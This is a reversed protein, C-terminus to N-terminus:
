CQLKSQLALKVDGEFSITCDVPNILVLPLLRKRALEVVEATGGPGSAPEGNWVAILIRASEVMNDALRAYCHPRVPPGEILCVPNAISQSQAKAILLQARNWLDPSSFDQSFQEEPLPLLVRTPISLTMAAEVCLMDAGEAVGTLVVVSHEACSACDRLECLLQEIRTGVLEHHDLNRHGSFGIVVPSSRM